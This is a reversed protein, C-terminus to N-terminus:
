AAQRFRIANPRLGYIVFELSKQEVSAYSESGKADAVGVLHPPTRMFRCIEIAQFNRSELWQSDENSVRLEHIKMGNELIPPNHANEAGSHMRRWGARFNEIAQEKMPNAAELAFPPLSGNQFVKAGHTEQAIELGVANRMARVVNVGTIGDESFLRLHFMDEQGFVEERLGAPRYKYRLTGDGLQDVAVRDPHLPVLQGPWGTRPDWIIRSYSNGRLFLHTWVMEQWEMSTQWANPHDHLLRYLPIEPAREKGEDGTRRYVLLPLSALTEAYLRVCAFVTSVALAANATVYVGASSRV